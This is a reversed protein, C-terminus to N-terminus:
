RELCGPGYKHIIQLLVERHRSEAGEYLEQLTKLESHTLSNLHPNYHDAMFVGGAVGPKTYIPYYFWLAQIDRKIKRVAVDLECSLESATVHRRILLISIIESRREAAGM